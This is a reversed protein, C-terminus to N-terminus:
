LGPAGFDESESLGRSKRWMMEWKEALAPNTPVEGNSLPVYLEGELYGAASLMERVERVFPTVFKRGKSDVFTLIGNNQYYTGMHRSMEYDSSPFTTELNGFWSTELGEKPIEISLAYVEAPVEELRKEKAIKEYREHKEKELRADLLERASKDMEEWREAMGPDTPEEGNSLPVYLSREVYGAEILLEIIEHVYPSVYMVGRENIFSVRGNNYCYTGMSSMVTDESIPRMRDVMGMWTTELGDAPIELCLDYAQAPLPEIRKEAALKAFRENKEREERIARQQRADICMQEWKAALISDSPVDGNSFPVYIGSDVYGLERLVEVVEVCYPTVYYSGDETVFAVRGNNWGYKKVWGAEPQLPRTSTENFIPYFATIGNVKICYQLIDNLNKM